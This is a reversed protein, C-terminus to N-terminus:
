RGEKGVNPGKRKMEKKEMAEKKNYNRGETKHGAKEKNRGL